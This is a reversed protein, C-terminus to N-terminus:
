DSRDNGSGEVGSEIFARAHEPDHTPHMGHGLNAIHGVPGFADLMKRVEARITSPEAYLVCPDLNGQL